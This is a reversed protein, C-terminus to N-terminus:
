LHYKGSTTKRLFSYSRFAKVELQGSIEKTNCNFNRVFHDATHSSIHRFHKREKTM